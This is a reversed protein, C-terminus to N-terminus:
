KLDHRIQGQSEFNLNELSSRMDSSEVKQHMNETSKSDNICSNQLNCNNM